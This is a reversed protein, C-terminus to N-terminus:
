ARHPRACAWGDPQGAAAVGASGAAAEVAAVHQGRSQPEQRHDGLGAGNKALRNLSNSIYKAYGGQKKIQEHYFEDVENMNKGYLCWVLSMLFTTKGYGNKGSIIIINKENTTTLDIVNAGKYIRFNYLALEKIQM